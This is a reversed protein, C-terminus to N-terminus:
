DFDIWGAKRACAYADAYPFDPGLKRAMCADFEDASEIIEVRNMDHSIDGFADAWTVIGDECYESANDAGFWQFRGNVWEHIVDDRNRFLMACSPASHRIFILMIM